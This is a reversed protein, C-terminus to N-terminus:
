AALALVGVVIAKFLAPHEALVSAVAQFAPALTGVLQGALNAFSQKLINVQGPLTKGVAEASGGFEKTLEALILKQAGMTDGAAVMAKVQEKQAATFSVGVRQLATMGKVPDNLAKGLQIASTKMDQGLAVSMDAMINTAQNFIDNGKGVENRVNTFTLLLNEGSQVAEDDIGSKKMISSALDSVQKATVGAAQGTSKLVAETQAGVKASEQFEGVGLKLTAALAGLGAAGAAILGAKGMSKLKSGMGTAATGAQAMGSQLGSTDSVFDVVIRPNGPM